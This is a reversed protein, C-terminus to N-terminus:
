VPTQAVFDGATVRVWRFLHEAYVRDVLLLTEETKVSLSMVPLEAIRSVRAEGPEPVSAENGVRLLLDRTREGRVRLVWVGGSQDVFCGDVAASLATQLATLTSDNRTVVWTQTPNRWALLCEEDASADPVKVARLADPLSVGLTSKCLQAFAGQSDFYRLAAVRVSRDLSVSLGVALVPAYPDCFDVM